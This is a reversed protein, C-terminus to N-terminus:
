HHFKFIILLMVVGFILVVFAGLMLLIQGFQTKLFPPKPPPATLEDIHSVDVQDLHDLDDILAEMNPYRREPDHQLCKAVVTAVSLPVGPKAKDLRPVPDHLHKNLLKVPDDSIFPREGALMEYLTMGLAYIDTRNDGRLGQIQEPSIYELTGAAKGGGPRAKSLALGFDLLIPQDGETVYVNDPKLDRHVVAEHHCYLLAEGIRRTLAVARDLPLPSQENLLSRLSKGKVLATVLFPTTNYQGSEIFRQISPHNLRHLAALERLFREYKSPDIITERMPIKLAVEHRTRVDIAHYVDGTGGQAIHGQIEYFDVRDGKQLPM